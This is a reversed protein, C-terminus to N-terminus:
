VQFHASVWHQGEIGHDVIEQIAKRISDRMAFLLLVMETSTLGQNAQLAKLHTIISALEADVAQEVSESREVLAVLDLLLGRLEEFVVPDDGLRNLRSFTEKLSAKWHLHLANVKQQIFQTIDSQM